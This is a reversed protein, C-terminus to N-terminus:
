RAKRIASTSIRVVATIRCVGVAVNVTVVGIAALVGISTTSSGVVGAEVPKLSLLAANLVVSEQCLGGTLLLMVQDLLMQNDNITCVSVCAVPETSAIEVSQM